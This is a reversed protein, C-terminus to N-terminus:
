MYHSIGRERLRDDYFRWSNQSDLLKKITEKLIETTLEKENLLCYSVAQKISGKISRMSLYRIIDRLDSLKVQIKVYKKFKSLMYEAFRLKESLSPAIMLRLSFRDLIAEDLYEPPMNSTGVIVLPLFSARIEDLLNLIASRIEFFGGYITAYYYGAALIEFDNFIVMTLDNIQKLEDRLRMIREATEGAFKNGVITPIDIEYVKFGLEKGITVTGQSKGNGPPGALLITNDYLDRIKMELSKKITKLSNIFLELASKPWFLEKTSPIETFGEKLLQVSQVIRVKTNENVTVANEPEIKEIKFIVGVDGLHAAKIIGPQIRRLKQLARSAIFTILESNTSEFTPSLVKIWISKASIRRKRTATKKQTETRKM